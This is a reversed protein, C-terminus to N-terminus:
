EESADTSKSAVVADREEGLDKLKDFVRWYDAETPRVGSDVMTRLRALAEEREANREPLRQLGAVALDILRIVLMLEAGSM